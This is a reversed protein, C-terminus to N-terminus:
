FFLFVYVCLVKFKIHILRYLKFLFAFVNLDVSFLIRSCKTIDIHTVKILGKNAKTKSLASTYMGVTIKPLCFAGSQIM